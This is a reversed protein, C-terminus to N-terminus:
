GPLRRWASSRASLRQPSESADVAPWEPGLSTAIRQTDPPEARKAARRRRNLGGALQLRQTSLRGHVGLVERNSLGLHSHGSRGSTRKWRGTFRADLCSAPAAVASTNRALRSATPQCSALVCCVRHASCPSSTSTGSTAGLAETAVGVDRSVRADAGGGAEPWVPASWQENHALVIPAAAFLCRIASDLVTVCLRTAVGPTSSGSRDM